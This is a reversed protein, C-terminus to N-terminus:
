QGIIESKGMLLEVNLGGAAHEFFEDVEDVAKYSLYRVKKEFEIKKFTPRKVQEIVRNRKSIPAVIFLPYNSNPAIIKLDSFRLLGSYIATTNEIEFAADIRFQEKWIVDINEVYKSDIDLGSTFQKEFNSFDYEETIKSQDNKPVWVKSGAKMGLRILKWQMKVHDSLEDDDLIRQINDQWLENEHYDSKDEMIETKRAEIREGNKIRQLISYLDDYMSYFEKLKDESIITFGRLNWAPNYNFLKKFESFSLNIELPNAIFYILDWSQTTEGKINKWLDRALDPNVTKAAVKGLLKIIDGEVILIDDGPEMREFKSRNVPVDRSGWVAIRKNGFISMLQYRLNKNIFHFIRDSQVENKITDQYHVLAEYNGTPIYVIFIKKM